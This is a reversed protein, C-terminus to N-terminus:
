TRRWTDILKKRIELNRKVCKVVKLQDALSKSRVNRYKVDINDSIERGIVPCKIINKQTDRGM